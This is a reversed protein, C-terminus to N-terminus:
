NKTVNMVDLEEGNSGNLELFANALKEYESALLMKGPLEYPDETDYALCLDRDKFDPQVCAEVLCRSVFLSQDIDGENKGKSKRSRQAISKMKSHPLTKLIFPLPNGEEDLFRDSINTFVATKESYTPKLFGALNPM